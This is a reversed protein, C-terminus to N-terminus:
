ISQCKNKGKKMKRYVKIDERPIRMNIYYNLSDILNRIGLAEITYDSFTYIMYRYKHEDAIVAAITSGNRKLYLRVEGDPMREAEIAYRNKTHKTLSRVLCKTEKKSYIM